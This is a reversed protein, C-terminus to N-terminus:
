TRSARQRQSPACKMSPCGATGTWTAPRADARVSAGRCPESRPTGLNRVSGSRTPHTRPMCACPPPTPDRGDRASAARRRVRGLPPPPPRAVPGRALAHQRLPSLVPSPAARIRVLCLPDGWKFFAASAAESYSGVGRIRAFDPDSRPQDRDASQPRVWVVLMDQPSTLCTRVLHRLDVAHDALRYARHMSFSASLVSGAVKNPAVSVSRSPHPARFECGGTGGGVVMQRRSVSVEQM